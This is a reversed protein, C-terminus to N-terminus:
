GKKGKKGGKHDKKGGKHHGGGHGTHGGGGEDDEHPGEAELLQALVAVFREHKQLRVFDVNHVLEARKIQGAEVVAEIDGCATDLNGCAISAAAHELLAAKNEPHGGTVRLSMEEATAGDRM